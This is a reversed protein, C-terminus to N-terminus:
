SPQDWSGAIIVISIVLAIMTAMNITSTKVFDTIVDAPNYWNVKKRNEGEGFLQDSVARQSVYLAPLEYPMRRGARIMRKQIDDKLNWVAPPESTLGRGASELEGSTLYSYRHIESKKGLYGTTLQQDTDRFVLSAYPDTVGDIARQVGQLEDLHKRIQAIDKVTTTSLSGQIKEALKLGGKKFTATLIGATAISGATHAFFRMIPHGDLARSLIGSDQSVGQTEGENMPLDRSTIGYGLNHIPGRDRLM